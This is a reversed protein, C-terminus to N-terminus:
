ILVVERESFPSVHGLIGPNWFNVVLAEILKSTADSRNVIEASPVATVVDPGHLVFGVVQTANGIIPVWHGRQPRQENPIELWKTVDDGEVAICIHTEELGRDCFYQGLNRCVDDVLNDCKLHHFAGLVRTVEVAFALRQFATVV